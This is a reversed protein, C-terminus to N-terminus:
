RGPQDDSLHLYASDFQALECLRQWDLIEVIGNSFALLGASRLEQLTRNAHVISMGMAAALDAQTAKFNFTRGDILGVAELRVYMECFLHAMRAEASAQGIMMMWTLFRASDVLTDRWFLATLGPHDRLMAHMDAHRLLGIVSPTIAALTYDVKRLHLSQLDPIDGPPHFSLIQRNGDLMHKQRHLLGTLVVCCHNVVEGEMAAPKGRDLEVVRFPLRHIAAEYEPLLRGISALKTLLVDLPQNM